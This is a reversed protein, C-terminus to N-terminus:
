WNKITDTLLGTNPKLLHKYTFSSIIHYSINWTHKDKKIWYIDLFTSYYEECLKKLFPNKISFLPVYKWEEFYFLWLFTSFIQKEYKTLEILGIKCLLLFLFDHFNTSTQPLVKYFKLVTSRDIFALSALSANARSLRKQCFVSASVTQSLSYSKCKCM